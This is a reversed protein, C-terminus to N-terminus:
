IRQRKVIKLHTQSPLEEDEGVIVQKKIMQEPKASENIIQENNPVFFPEIQMPIKKKATHWLCHDENLILQLNKHDFWVHKPYWM